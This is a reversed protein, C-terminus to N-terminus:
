GNAVKSSGETERDRGRDRERQTGTDRQPETARLNKDLIIRM